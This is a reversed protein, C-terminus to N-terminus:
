CDNPSDLSCTEFFFPFCWSDASRVRKSLLPEARHNYGSSICALRSIGKRRDPELALLSKASQASPLSRCTVLLAYAGAFDFNIGTEDIVVNEINFVGLYGARKLEGQVRDPNMNPGTVAARKKEQLLSAYERFKPKDWQERRTWPHHYHRGSGWFTKFVCALVEKEGDAYTVDVTWRGQTGRINTITKVM